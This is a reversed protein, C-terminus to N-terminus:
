RSVHKNACNKNHARLRERTHLVNCHTCLEPLKDVLRSALRSTHTFLVERCVPCFFCRRACGSCILQACCHTEEIAGFLEPVEQCIVCQLEDRLVSEWEIGEDPIGTFEEDTASEASNISQQKSSVNTNRNAIDENLKRFKSLKSENGGM